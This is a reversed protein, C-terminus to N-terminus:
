KVATKGSRTEYREKKNVQGSDKVPHGASIQPLSSPRVHLLQTIAPGPPFQKLYTLQAVKHCGHRRDGYGKVGNGTGCKYRYYHPLEEWLIVLQFKLPNSLAPVSLNWTESVAGNLKYNQYCGGFMEPLESYFIILCRIHNKDTLVTDVVHIKRYRFLCLEGTKQKNQKTKWKWAEKGVVFHYTRSKQNVRAIRTMVHLVETGTNYSEAYQYVYTIWFIDELTKTM